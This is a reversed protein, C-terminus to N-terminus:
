APLVWEEDGDTYEKILFAERMQGIMNMRCNKGPTEGLLMLIDPPSFVAGARVWRGTSSECLEGRPDM